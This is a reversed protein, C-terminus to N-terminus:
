KDTLAILPESSVLSRKPHFITWTCHALIIPSMQFGYFWGEHANIPDYFKELSQILTYIAMMVCAVSSVCLLLVASRSMEGITKSWSWVLYFYLTVILLISASITRFAYSTNITDTSFALYNAPFTLLASTVICAMTGLLIVRVRRSKERRVEMVFVFNGMIIMRQGVTLLSNTIAFFYKTNRDDGNIAARLILELCITMHSVLLLICLRTPHFRNRYSQIFWAILSLGVISATVAAAARNPEYTTYPYVLPTM